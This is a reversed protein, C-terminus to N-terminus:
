DNNAQKRVRRRCQGLRGPRCAPIACASRLLGSENVTYGYWGGKTMSACGAPAVRSSTGSDTTAAHTSNLDQWLPQVLAVPRLLRTPQGVTSPHPRSVVSPQGDVRGHAGDSRMACLYVSSYGTCFSFRRGRGGAAKVEMAIRQRRPVYGSARAPCRGCSPARWRASQRVHRARAAGDPHRVPRRHRDHCAGRCTAFIRAGCQLSRAHRCCTGRKERVWGALCGPLRVAQGTRAAQRKNRGCSWGEAEDGECARRIVPSTRKCGDCAALTDTYAM